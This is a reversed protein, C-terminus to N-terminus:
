REAQYMPPIIKFPSQLEETFIAFTNLMNVKDGFLLETFRIMRKLVKGLM